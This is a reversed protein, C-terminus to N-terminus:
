RQAMNSAGRGACVQFRMKREKKEREGGLDVEVWAGTSQAAHYLSYYATTGSVDMDVLHDFINRCGIYGTGAPAAYDAVNSYCTKNRAVNVDNSDFVM